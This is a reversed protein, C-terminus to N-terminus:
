SAIIQFFEESLLDLELTIYFQMSPTYLVLRIIIICIYHTNRLNRGVSGIVVSQGIM